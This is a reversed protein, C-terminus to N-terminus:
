CRVQERHRVPGLPIVSASIQRAPRPTQPPHASVWPRPVPSHADRALWTRACTVKATVTRITRDCSSSATSASITGARPCPERHHAGGRHASLHVRSPHRPERISGLCPRMCDGLPRSTSCAEASVNDGGPCEKVPSSATSMPIAIKHRQRRCRTEPTRGTADRTRNALASGTSPPGPGGPNPWHM